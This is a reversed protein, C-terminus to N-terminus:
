LLIIIVFSAQSMYTHESQWTSHAMGEKESVHAAM